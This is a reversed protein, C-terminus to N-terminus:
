ATLLGNLINERVDRPRVWNQDNNNQGGCGDPRPLSEWGFYKWGFSLTSLCQPNGRELM